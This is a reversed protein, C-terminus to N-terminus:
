RAFGSLYYSSPGYIMFERFALSQEKSPDAHVHPHSSLHPHLRLFPPQPLRPLIQSASGPTSHLAKGATHADAAPSGWLSHPQPAGM